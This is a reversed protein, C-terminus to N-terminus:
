KSPSKLEVTLDWRNGIIQPSHTAILFDVNTVSSIRALDKLFSTQWAVHLSIEPEDILVLSDAETLFLLQYLIVLEHQEGTSLSTPPLDQGGAAQFVLGLRKDVRVKKYTFRCNLLQLFLEIRRRLDSFVDLKQTVDDIYVALVALQSADPEPIPQNDQASQELLGVSQLDRRQEDLASLKHRVEELSLSKGTLQSM